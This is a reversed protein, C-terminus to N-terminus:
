FKAPIKRRERLQFPDYYPNLRILAWCIRSVNATVNVGLVFKFLKISFPKCGRIGKCYTANVWNCQWSHETVFASQTQLYIIRPLMVASANSIPSLTIHNWLPLCTWSRGHNNPTCYTIVASCGQYNELACYSGTLIYVSYYIRNGYWKHTGNLISDQVPYCGLEYSSFGQM